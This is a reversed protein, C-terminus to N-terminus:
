LETANYRLAYYGMSTPPDLMGLRIRVRYLRRLATAVAAADTKGDKVAAPLESIAANGGGEQDLGANIGAAAAAEMSKTYNRHYLLAWADYDSVVFGDFAWQKRLIENLLGYNGCAPVGNVWNYSAMVHTAKADKICRKFAPMHTEWMDRANIQANFYSRDVTGAGGEVDYVAFHKCCTGARLHGSPGVSSGVSNNQAGTVMAVVLAGM